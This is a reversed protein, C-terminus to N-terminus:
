KVSVGRLDIYFPFTPNLQFGVVSPTYAVVSKAHDVFVWPADQNILSEAQQYLQSRQAPDSTTEAKQLLADVQPDKYFGTNFGPPWSSSALLPNLVLSPDVASDMWSLEWMDLNSAKAGAGVRNLYTGWDLEEVKVTVGIAAWYGQIATAMSTPNQMGSGSTPVLLTTSFGHPYGAEALLQKAKTPNYHYPNSNPDFGMQGPALPQNAPIGTGYLINKTIATRNIAYNLAQRVKVSNFPPNLLNMGIWWIHPGAQMAIKDGATRIQSLDVPSPNIVMDVTGAQLDTARQSSQVIPIFVVQSLSPASGWYHPNPILTLQQGRQWSKVMFPGTGEGELAFKKGETLVSKPDVIAGTLVTLSSLFSAEPKSLTFQVTTPNVATVHSIDGYFFAGFPYPGYKYGPNTKDLMREYTFVVAAANMTDGNAFKVNPRLHFTYTLGDPSSTWSTALDPVLAGHSDYRVLTDYVQNLVQGSNIDTVQAPDLSTADAEYGVVLHTSAASSQSPASSAPSGCGALVGVSLVAGTVSIWKSNAM